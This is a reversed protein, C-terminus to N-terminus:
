SRGPEWFDLQDLSSFGMDRYVPYGAQSASLWAWRAGETLGDYVARATIASGYGRRRHEPLTAVSFIGVCNGTTVSLATTVARGKAEGVYCRIGPTNLVAPSILDRYPGERRTVGGGAAVRAHLAADDPVLKRVDLGDAELRGAVGREDSIVMLPEGPVRVLGRLRAVEEVDPPWGARLQMCHPVEAARVADLLRGLAEPDVDRAQGRVGNFGGLQAGTVVGLAGGDRRVWAGPVARALMEWADVNAHAVADADLDM